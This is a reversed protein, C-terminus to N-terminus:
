LASLLRGAEGLDVVEVEALVGDYGRRATDIRILQGAADLQRLADALDDDLLGRLQTSDDIGTRDPGAPGSADPGAWALGPVNPDCYITVNM